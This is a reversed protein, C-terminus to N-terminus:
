GAVADLSVTKAVTTGIGAGDCVAEVVRAINEASYLKDNPLPNGPYSYEVMSAVFAEIDAQDVRAQQENPTRLMQELEKFDRVADIGPIVDYFIKGLVYVKRGIAAAEWALTSTLTVVRTARALVARGHVEAPIFYLGSFERRLDWFKRRLLSGKDVPHEKVALVQNPGLCKLINEITAAQNAYFHSMYNLTAEPEQHLPYFIVERESPIDDLRDYRRWLSKLTVSLRKGYEESYLEYRFRGDLRNMLARGNWLAWKVIAAVIPKLARRGALNQVYSPKYDKRNLAVMYERAIARSEASPELKPLLTGSISMPDPMWYFLDDPLCNMGALYAISRKRAEILLVESIEIAVLENVVAAPRYEDLLNAWFTIEKGLIERRQAHDFRGLFRDAMFSTYLYNDAVEAAALGAFDSEFCGVVKGGRREVEGIERETMTVFLADYRDSTLTPFFEAQYARAFFIITPKAM